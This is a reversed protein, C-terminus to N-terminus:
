AAQVAEKASFRYGSSPVTEIYEAAAGLKARLSAIHKDVTRELVHIQDGWAANLLQERSLVIEKNKMFHLLLKFELSTLSLELPKGDKEVYARQSTLLISIIGSRLVEESKRHARSRKLKNEVRARLEIPNFPKAIYDDAGLSLGIVKESVQDHATLFIIPLQATEPKMRLEACLQFGSGDPLEVDLLVLEIGGIRLQESAERLTSAVILEGQGSLSRLIGAVADESDEVILIKGMRETKPILLYLLLSRRLKNFNLLIGFSTKKM